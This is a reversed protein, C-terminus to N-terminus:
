YKLLHLSLITVEGVVCAKKKKLAKYTKKGLNDKKKIKKKNKHKKKLIIRTL